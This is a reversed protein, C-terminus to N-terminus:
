SNPAKLLGIQQKVVVSLVANPRREKEDTADVIEFPREASV